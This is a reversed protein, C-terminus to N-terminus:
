HNPSPKQTNTKLVNQNERSKEKLLYFTMKFLLLTKIHLQYYLLSKRICIVYYWTDQMHPQTGGEGLYLCANKPREFVSSLWHKAEPLEGSIFHGSCTSNIYQAQRSTRNKTNQLQTRLEQPDLAKERPVEWVRCQQTFSVSVHVCLYVWCETARRPGGSIQWHSESSSNWCDSCSPICSLAKETGKISHRGSRLVWYAGTLAM